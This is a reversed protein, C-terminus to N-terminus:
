IENNITYISGIYTNKVCNNEISAVVIYVSRDIAKITVKGM